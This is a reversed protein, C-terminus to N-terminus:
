NCVRLRSVEYADAINLPNGTKAVHGIIGQGWPVRIEYTNATSDAVTSKSNVDFLKSTLYGGEEQVLFLSCRDAHVLISVNQLIKHCLSTVDLDNCIDMVLEYLMERENLARLETITKRPKPSVSSMSEPFFTPNGDVTTLMPRLTQGSFEQSSIKRIPTNTGSSSTSDIATDFVSKGFKRKLYDLTFSKHEDLYREVKAREEEEEDNDDNFELQVNASSTM